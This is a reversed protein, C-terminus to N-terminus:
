EAPLFLRFVTGSRNPAQTSRVRLSGKHRSVIELSVSLGLGTGSHGKTTFFPEFIKTRVDPHIGTGTDAVTISLGQRGNSWNTACRSRLLLRGGSRQMSDIANSILNSLVQRIEGEFCTLTHPSRIRKEVRVRGNLLRSHFINIVGELLEASNITKMSSSQKSFSLTQNTIASIRRLESDAQDLFDQVESSSSAVRALYLLNTVAGLPNNIEHSISASLRGIAALKENQILAKQARKSETIDVGMVIIGSISGDEERLPQYVFDVYREDPAQGEAWTVDFRAGEGKVPEGTKIVRDLMAVYGQGVAEPLAVALPKGLLDRDGVLKVYLPNVMTIVHAPGELLVFFAPAQQVISLLRTREARLARVSTALEEQQARLAEVAAGRERDAITVATVDQCITIIGAIRGDPEFLPSYNYSFYAEELKGNRLIPVLANQFSITQGDNLVSELQQGVVPWVDTWFERGRDGLADPHRDTLIPTFADNYLLVLKPGCLLLIPHSASLMMNVAGLLTDTWESVPGISTSEWDFARVRKAMEGSGIIRRTQIAPKEARLQGRM